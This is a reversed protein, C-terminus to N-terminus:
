PSFLIGIAGGAATAILNTGWNKIIGKNELLAGAYSDVFHGAVGVATGFVIISCDPVVMLALLGIFFASIFAISTGLVSIGGNTGPEVTKFNTVLWPKRKSLVGVESSATDAAATATAGLFGYFNGFFACIAAVIGNSLVHRATRYKRYKTHFRKKKEEKFRTAISAIVFFGLIIFFWSIGQKILVVFGIALAAMVGKFDLTGSLLALGAILLLLFYEIM